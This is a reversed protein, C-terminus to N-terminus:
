PGPGYTGGQGYYTRRQTLDPWFLFASIPTHADFMVSVDILCTLLLLVRAVPLVRAESGGQDFRDSRSLLM